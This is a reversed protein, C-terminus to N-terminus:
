RFRGQYTQTRQDVTFYTSSDEVDWDELCQLHYAAMKECRDVIAQPQGTCIQAALSWMITLYWEVPFSMLDNLSVLNTIQQTVILHMTGLAAEADPTLWTYVNLSLQQKDVFFSTLPGQSLTTSLMDWESRGMQILPRRTANVNDVYYAEFGRIPKTMPVTGSPGLTYLNTGAILTIPLDYNLWLKLGPRTQLHNFIYNLKNIYMAYHDSTPDRGRGLYGAEVMADRIIQISTGFTTPNTM